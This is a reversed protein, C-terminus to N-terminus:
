CGAGLVAQEKEKSGAVVLPQEKKEQEKLQEKEAIAFLEEELAKAKANEEEQQKLEAIEELEKVEEELAEREM